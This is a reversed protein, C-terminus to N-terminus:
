GESSRPVYAELSDKLKSRWMAKVVYMDAEEPEPVHVM